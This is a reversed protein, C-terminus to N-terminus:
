KKDRKIAYPKEEVAEIKEKEILYESEKKDFRYRKLFLGLSRASEFGELKWKSAIESLLESATIWENIHNELVKDLKDKRTPTSM